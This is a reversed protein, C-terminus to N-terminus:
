SKTTRSRWRSSLESFVNHSPFSVRPLDRRCWMRTLRDSRNSCSTPWTDGDQPSGSHVATCLFGQRPLLFVNDMTLFGEPYNQKNNTDNKNLTFNGDLESQSTTEAGVSIEKALAKTHLKTTADDKHNEEMYKKGWFQKAWQKAEQRKIFSISQNFILKFKLALVGYFFFIFCM